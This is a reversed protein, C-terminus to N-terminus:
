LKESLYEKRYRYYTSKTLRLKNMLEVPKLLGAEVNKYEKVFEDLSMISPRGYSDWEGRRKMEAIGEAQRKKRKENEAQAFSAYMEILMNNITDSLMEAMTNDYFNLDMLTTPIELIMVRVDMDKFFRLEELTERKNRGLRDVETIILVDGAQLVDEKLVTYRPRTFNTGSCKDTYIKKLKISHEQCYKEIETIGRDLHQQATSIRHYGYYNVTM